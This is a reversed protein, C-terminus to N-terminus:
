YLQQDQTASNTKKDLAAALHAQSNPQAPAREKWLLSPGELRIYVQAMGIM